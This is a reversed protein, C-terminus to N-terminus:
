CCASYSLSLFLGTCSHCLCSDPIIAARHASKAIEQAPEYPVLQSEDDRKSVYRFFFKQNTDPIVLGRRSVGNLQLPQLRQKPPCERHPYQARRRLTPRSSAALPTRNGQGGRSGDLVLKSSAQTSQHYQGAFPDSRTQLHKAPTGTDLCQSNWPGAKRAPGKSQTRLASRMMTNANRLFLGGMCPGINRRRDM